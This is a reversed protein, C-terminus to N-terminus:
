LRRALNDGAKLLIKSFSDLQLTIFSKGYETLMFHVHVCVCVCLSQEAFSLM